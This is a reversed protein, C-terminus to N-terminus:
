LIETPLDDATISGVKDNKKEKRKAEAEKALEEELMRQLVDGPSPPRSPQSATRAQDKGQDKKKTKRIYSASPAYKSKELSCKQDRELTMEAIDCNQSPENKRRSLNAGVSLHVYVRLPAGFGNWATSILGADKLEKKLRKVKYASWGLAVSPNNNGSLMIYKTGSDDTFKSGDVRFYIFALLWMASDSLDSLERRLEFIAETRM